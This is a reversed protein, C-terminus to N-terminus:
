TTWLNLVHEVSKCYTNSEEKSNISEQIQLHDLLSDKNLDIHKL